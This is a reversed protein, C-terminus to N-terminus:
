RRRKELIHLCNSIFKEKCYYMMCSDYIDMVKYLGLMQKEQILVKRIHKIWLEDSLESLIVRRRQENAENHEALILNVVKLTLTHKTIKNKADSDNLFQQQKTSAPTPEVWNGRLEEVKAPSINKLFKPTLVGKSMYTIFNVDPVPYDKNEWSWLGNGKSSDENPFMKYYLRKLPEATKYKCGIMIMHVHTTKVSEDAEHEYVAMQECTESWVQIIGSLDNFPLRILPAFSSSSSMRAAKQALQKRENM